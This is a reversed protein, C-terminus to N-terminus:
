IVPLARPGISLPKHKRVAVLRMWLARPEGSGQVLESRPPQREVRQQEGIGFGYNQLTGSREDTRV